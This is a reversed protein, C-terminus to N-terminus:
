SDFAPFLSNLHAIQNLLVLQAEEYYHTCKRMLAVRLKEAFSLDMGTRLPSFSGKKVLLFYNSTGYPSCTVCHWLSRSM